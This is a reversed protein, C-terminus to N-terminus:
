IYDNMELTRIEGETLEYDSNIIFLSKQLKEAIFILRDKTKPFNNFVGISIDFDISRIIELKKIKEM